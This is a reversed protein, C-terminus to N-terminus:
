GEPDAQPGSGRRPSGGGTRSPANRGSGAGASRGSYPGRGGGPNPQYVRELADELQREQERGEFESLLDAEAIIGVLRGERDTVPVRKVRERRMVDLVAGVRDNKNVTGVDTTMVESVKMTRADKGEATARITIDRDTVVGRLRRSQDGDVVPIIGVDLDRMKQAVEALTTDPGVAEPEATMIDAARMGVSGSGSGRGGQEAMEEGGSEYGGPGTGYPGERGSGRGYGGGYGRGGWGGGSPGGRPSFYDNGYRGSYGSGFGGGYDFDYGPIPYGGRGEGMWATEGPLNQWHAPPGEPRGGFGGGGSYGRDRDYRDANGWRTFDSGYRGM